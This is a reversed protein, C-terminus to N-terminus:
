GECDLFWRGETHTGTTWAVTSDVRRSPATTRARRGVCVCQTVSRATHTFMHTQHSTFHRHQAHTHTRTHHSPAHSSTLIWFLNSLPSDIHTHTYTYIYTHESAQQHMITRAMITQLLCATAAVHYPMQHQYTHQHVYIGSWMIHYALSREGTLDITIPCCM